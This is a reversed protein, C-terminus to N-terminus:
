QELHSYLKWKTRSWFEDITKQISGTLAGASVVLSKGRERRDGENIGFYPGSSTLYTNIRTLNISIFARLASHLTAFLVEACVQCVRDKGRELDVLSQGESEYWNVVMYPELSTAYPHYVKGGRRINHGDATQFM